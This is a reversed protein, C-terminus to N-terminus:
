AERTPEGLVRSALRGADARTIDEPVSQGMTVYSFPMDAAWATNLIGGFTEAEDLKTLIIRNAGVAQFRELVREACRRAATAPILLHIEAEGVGGLFGRLQNLRLRDNQSRGATDVLVVDVDALAHVAQHLEGPSLAVRLPAEIIDAYTKLQDVAAIRYSDVTVLGVRKNRRLKFDAALKAITTTKGVGTPGVLAVVRRAGADAEAPEEAITIRRVVRERLRRSVLDADALQEGTLDERVEGLLAAAIDAAVEQDILREYVSRLEPPVGGAPGDPARALLAEVMREIRDMKHPDSGSDDTDKEVSTTPGAPDRWGPRLTEPQEPVYTGPDAAGAVNAAATVEWTPKGGLLGLFGGKRYNRTRLIVADRGLDRKVEALARAMTDAQYTRARM